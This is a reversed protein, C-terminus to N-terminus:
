TSPAEIRDAAGNQASHGAGPPFANQSSSPRSLPPHPPHQLVGPPPPFQGPVHPGQAYVVTHPPPAGPFPTPIGQRVADLEHRLMEIERLMEQHNQKLQTVFDISLEGKSLIEWKSAKMGRDAPLQDRLEDFLDKMEKRRKREALKHSIRLEPSRSYPTSSEKSNRSAPNSTSEEQSVSAGSSAANSGNQKQRSPPRSRSRLVRTQVSPLAAPVSMRRDQSFSTPMMGMPMNPDLTRSLGTNPDVSDSTDVNAPWSFTAMGGPLRGDNTVGPPYNAMTATGPLASNSERRGNSWWHQTREHISLQALSRSDIASGRRKPPPADPDVQMLSPVGPGVLQPDIDDGVPSFGNRDSSMKRKTGHPVHQGTAISHRRMNYNFHRDDSRDTDSPADSPDPPLSPSRLLKRLTTPDANPAAHLSPDTISGRRHSQLFDLPALPAVPSPPAPPHPPPAPSPTPPSM